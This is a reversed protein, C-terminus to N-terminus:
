SVVTQNDVFLSLRLPLIAKASRLSEMVNKERGVFAAVTHVSSLCLIMQCLTASWCATSPSSPWSSQALMVSRKLLSTRIVHGNSNAKSKSVDWVCTHSEWCRSQSLGAIQLPLAERAAQVHQRYPHMEAEGEKYILINCRLTFNHTIFSGAMHRAGM